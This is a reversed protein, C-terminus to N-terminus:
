QRTSSRIMNLAVGTVGLLNNVILRKTAMSLSELTQLNYQEDFSDPDMLLNYGQIHEDKLYETM